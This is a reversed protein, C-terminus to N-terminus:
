KGFAYSLVLAANATFYRSPRSFFSLRLGAQLRKHLSKGANHAGYAQVPRVWLPDYVIGVRREIYPDLKVSDFTYRGVAYIPYINDGERYSHYYGVGGGVFGKKLVVGHTTSLMGYPQMNKSSFTQATKLNYTDGLAIDVYGRYGKYSDGGRSVMLSVAFVFFLLFVRRM